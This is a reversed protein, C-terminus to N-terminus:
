RKVSRFWREAGRHLPVRGTAIGTRVNIRGAESHGAAIRASETFVTRTVVEVVSADLASRALLLNPVAFTRCPGMSGYTTAPITVPAYPGPFADALRVAEEPLDLLRFPFGGLLDRIAPTPIGTLAVMADIAGAAMRRAAEAHAMRQVDVRVGLLDLLRSATFETGSEHPGFSVRAGALDAIRRVPAGAPVVVQLFSDYLRGVASIGAPDDASLRAEFLPDLSSLGLHVEGAALLRVNAVSAGTSRAVVRSGPLRDALAGALAGGVERFVAGEPGTALVLEAPAPPPSSTCAPAGAALAALLLSRRTVQM